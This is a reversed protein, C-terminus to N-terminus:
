LLLFRVQARKFRSKAKEQARGEKGKEIRDRFLFLVVM